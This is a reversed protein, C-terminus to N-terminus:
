FFGVTKSALILLLGEGSPESLNFLLNCECNQRALKLKDVNHQQSARTATFFLNAHESTCLVKYFYIYVKYSSNANTASSLVTSLFVVFFLYDSTIKQVEIEQYISHM